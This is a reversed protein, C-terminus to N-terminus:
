PAMIRTTVMQYASSNHFLLGRVRVQAGNTVSSLGVLETGSQQYVTMITKGTLVAFASDSPLTLTFTAPSGASYNSVVGSMAQQVLRVGSANMTGANSMGGGMMGGGGSMAGSSVPEVRQAPSLTSNDFTFPLNSMDVGDTDVTYAAGTANVTVSNGLSFSGMGGGTGNQAILTFQTAPSGTTSNVLGNATAGGPGMLLQVTQALMTGDSQMTAVVSVIQGSGMMGMGSMNPFQTNSNTAFNMTQSSEMMALGFSNSSTSAVSGVVQMAGNKPDSSNGSGPAGMSATYTPTMTVNGASDISVSQAVDMDFNFVVPATGVTMPSSFTFTKSGVSVTKQMLSPNMFSVAASGANITASTYTGQPVGLMSLAQMSGMLRTMEVVTPTSMVTTATNDSRTMTISNITMAFAMIRDSPSDGVNILASSTPTGPNTTSSTSGGGCAVLSFALAMSIPILLLSYKRPTFKGYLM